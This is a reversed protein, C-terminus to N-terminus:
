DDGLEQFAYHDYYWREFTEYDRMVEISLRFYTDAEFRANSQEEEFM